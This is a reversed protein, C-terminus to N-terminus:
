DRTKKEGYQLGPFALHQKYALKCVLQSAHLNNQLVAILLFLIFSYFTFNQM